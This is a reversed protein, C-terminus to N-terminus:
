FYVDVDILHLAFIDKDKHRVSSRSPKGSPIGITGFVEKLGCDYGFPVLPKFETVGTVRITLRPLSQGCIV